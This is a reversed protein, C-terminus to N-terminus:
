QELLFAPHLLAALWVDPLADDARRSQLDANHAFRVFADRSAGPALYGIVLDWADTLAQDSVDPWSCLAHAISAAHSDLAIAPQVAPVLKSGPCTAALDSAFPRLMMRWVLVNMANPQANRVDYQVGFGDPRGVLKSLEDGTTGLYHYLEFPTSAAIFKAYLDDQVAAYGRFKAAASPDIPQDDGTQANDGCGVLALAIAIVVRTTTQM